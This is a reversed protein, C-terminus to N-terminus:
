MSELYFQSKKYLKEKLATKDKPNEDRPKKEENSSGFIGFFRSIRSVSKENANAQKEKKNSKLPLQFSHSKTWTKESSINYFEFSKDNKELVVVSYKSNYIYKIATGSIKTTKIETVIDKYIKFYALKNNFVFCFKLDEQSNNNSVLSPNHIFFLGILGSFDCHLIDCVKETRINIILTMKREIVVAM